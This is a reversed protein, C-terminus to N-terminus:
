WERYAERRNRIYLVIVGGPNRSVAYLIRYDGQRVRYVPGGEHKANQVVEALPPNPERALADIREKIQRRIKQDWVDGGVLESQDFWVEVGAGRLADCIRKAAEADQSAYSLFVAGRPASIGVDLKSSEVSM